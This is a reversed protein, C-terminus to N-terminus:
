NDPKENLGRVKGVLVRLDKSIVTFFFPTHSKENWWAEFSKYYDFIIENTSTNILQNEFNIWGDSIIFSTGAPLRYNDGYPGGVLRINYDNKLKVPLTRPDGTIWDLKLKIALESRMEEFTKKLLAIRKVDDQTSFFSLIGKPKTKEDAIRSAALSAKMLEDHIARIAHRLDRSAAKKIQNLKIREQREKELQLLKKAEFSLGDMGIVGWEMLMTRVKEHAVTPEIGFFEGSKHSTALESHIQKEIVAANSVHWSFVIEFQGPVGTFSSLERSRRVPDRDTYGIKVLGPMFSNKLIYVYGITNSSLKSPSSGLLEIEAERMQASALYSQALKPNFEQVKKLEEKSYMSELLKQRKLAEKKLQEQTKMRFEKLFSM